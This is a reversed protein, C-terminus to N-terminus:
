RGSWTPDAALLERLQKLCRGRNPGISGRPMRLAESVVNYDPREVFAVIRLLERCRSNLKNLNRWLCLYQDQEVVRDEMANALDPLGTFAGPEGLDCRRLKRRVKWAEYKTVKVLWGALADPSRITTLSRLLTTWTEQVVDEAAERDLGQARAVNWVLPMMRNIIEELAQRDGDRALLLLQGLPRGPPPPESSTVSLRQQGGM